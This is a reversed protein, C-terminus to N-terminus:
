NQSHQQLKEIRVAQKEKGLWGEGIVVTVRPSPVQSGLINRACISGLLSVLGLVLPLGLM